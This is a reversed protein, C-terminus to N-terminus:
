NHETGDRRTLYSPNVYKLMVRGLSRDRRNHASRVVVGERLGGGLASPNAAAAIVLDHDFPACYTVVPVHNFGFRDATQQVEDPSLWERGAATGHMADFVFFEPSPLGYHLDQVKPGVIEGLLWVSHGRDRAFAELRDLRSRVASVYLNNDNDATDLRFRTKGLMGKSAVVPGEDIDFGVACFTGHLKETVQVPEGRRLVDPHAQWNEVDFGPSVLCPEVVGQMHVPVPPVWKVVGLRGAMDDGERIKDVDVLHPSMVSLLLGQSVVGRLRVAKVRNAQAGALRGVLGMEALLPQPVISAEPLYVALDGSCFEGKPVVCEWGGVQAVELRDADPHPVIVVRVVPCQFEAMCRLM